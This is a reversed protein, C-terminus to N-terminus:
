QKLAISRVALSLAQLLAAVGGIVAIFVDAHTVEHTLFFVSFAYAVVVAVAFVVGALDGAAHNPSKFIRWVLFAILVVAVALVAYKVVDVPMIDNIRQSNYNLWRVMGLKRLSFYYLVGAGIVLITSLVNLVVALKRM